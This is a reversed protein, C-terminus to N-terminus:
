SDASPVIAGGAKGDQGSDGSLRKSRGSRRSGARGRRQLGVLEAVPSDFAIKYVSNDERDWGYQKYFALLLSFATNGNGLIADNLLRKVLAELKTVTSRKAGETITITEQLEYLVDDAIATSPRMKARPRLNLPHDAALRRKGTLYAAGHEFFEEMFKLKQEMSLGCVMWSTSSEDFLERVFDLREALINILDCDDNLNVHHKRILRFLNALDRTSGQIARNVVEKILARQKSIKRSRGGEVVTIPADLEKMLIDDFRVPRGAPMCRAPRGNPNGSKGKVFRTGKPPNCYGVKYDNKM